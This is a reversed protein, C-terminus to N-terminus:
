PITDGDPPNPNGPGARRLRLTSRSPEAVSCPPGDFYAVTIVTADRTVDLHSVSQADERHMCVSVASREPEHSRHFRRLAEAGLAAREAARESWLASRVETARQDGRSSSCLLGSPTTIAQISLREGNWVAGSSHPEGPLNAFMRFPPCESLDLAELLRNFEAITRAGVLEPILSGRSRRGPTTSGSTQGDVNRNLLAVLLGRETAAFWTGGSQPDTPSLYAVGERAHLEPAVGRSRRLLEDRNFLLHFRPGDTLWSATCM